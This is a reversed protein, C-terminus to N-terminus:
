NSRIQSQLFDKLRRRVEQTVFTRKRLKGALELMRRYTRIFAQCEPCGSAHKELQELTKNDLELDIYGVINDVVDKCMAM